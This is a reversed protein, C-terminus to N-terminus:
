GLRRGTAPDFRHVRAPDVRLWAPAGPRAELDGTARAVLRAEGVAVTVLTEAGAPEVLWVTGATAGGPAAGLGLELHEPRVGAVGGGPLGLVAPEVLNIRPAGFFSAVFTTAPREYVEKPTGVQQVRGRDMVVVRSSLTMAELQDHTVYVFTAGLEEHLKKLEGRVQGRLAADLNSLPEDFLFVAPRRVLARGLAVRQRQGGSLERPRRALLESIGLRAATEAVRREREAKPVGAVELPFALNRRVDLHPYLAYSQFVMAVDRDKPSAGTVDAGGIRVTGATPEELGAIVALTTSKGCGSPGVISVFAGDEVTLTVDAVAVVGGRYTKGVGELRVEAM